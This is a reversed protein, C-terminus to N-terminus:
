ADSYRTEYAELVERRRRKAAASLMDETWESGDDTDVDVSTVGPLSGVVRRIETIFYPVMHCAPTTLRMRVRVTGEALTVSKVLGMELVNL